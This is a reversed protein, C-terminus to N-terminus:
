LKLLSLAYWPYEFHHHSIHDKQNMIDEVIRILKIIGRYHPKSISASKLKNQLIFYLFLLSFELIAKDKKHEYIFAFIPPYNKSFDLKTYENYYTKFKDLVENDIKKAIEPYTNLFGEINVDYSEINNEKRVLQVRSMVTSPLKHINSTSFLFLSDLPPEELIKLIAQLSTHPANEINHIIAIKYKAFSKYSFFMELKRVEDIVFDEGKLELIDHKSKTENLLIDLIEAIDTDINSHLPIEFLYAHSIEKAGQKRIQKKFDGLFIM